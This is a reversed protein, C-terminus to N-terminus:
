KCEHARMCAHVCASCGWQRVHASLHVCPDSKGLDDNAAPNAIAGGATLTAASSRPPLGALGGGLGVAMSFRELQEDFTMQDDGCTDYVDYVYYKGALDSAQTLLQQCKAPFQPKGAMKFEAACAAEIETWLHDSIFAKNHLFEYHVKSAGPFSDQHGIIGNGVAFQLTDLCAV